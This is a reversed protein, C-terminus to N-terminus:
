ERYFIGSTNGLKHGQILWTRGRQRFPTDSPYDVPNVLVQQFIRKEAAREEEETEYILFRKQFLITNATEKMVAALGPYLMWSECHFYQYEPFMVHALRFAAECSAPDAPSGQPIHVNLLREGAAISIGPVECSFSYFLLSVM